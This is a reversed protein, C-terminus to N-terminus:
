ALGINDQTGNSKYFPLAGGDLTINDQTGDSRYFPFASSSPLNLLASGDIAPLAGTLMSALHTAPHSYTTDDLADGLLGATIRLQVRDSTSFAQATTSEAGRTVTFTTGSIATCKVIEKQSDTANSLTLYTYEGSSLSPFNAASSVSLSTASATIGSTLTTSADNTFKVTM